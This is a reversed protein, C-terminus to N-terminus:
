SFTFGTHLFRLQNNTPITHTMPVIAPWRPGKAEEHDVYSIEDMLRM